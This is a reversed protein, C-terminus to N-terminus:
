RLIRYGGFLRPEALRKNDIDYFYVSVFDSVGSDKSIQKIDNSVAEVFREKIHDEFRYWADSVIVRIMSYDDRRGTMFEIINGDHFDILLDMKDFYADIDAGSNSASPTPSAASTTTPTPTQSPTISIPELVITTDIITVNDDMYTHDVGIIIGVVRVNIDEKEIAPYERISIGEFLFMPGHWDGDRNVDEFDAPIIYVYRHNTSLERKGHVRRWSIHVFGNFEVTRGIHKDVFEEIEAQKPIYINMLAKFDENNNQTIIEDNIVSTPSPAPSPTPTTDIVDDSSSILKLVEEHTMTDRKEIEIGSSRAKIFFYSNSDASVNFTDITVNGDNGFESITITNEGENLLLDYLKIEGQEQVGISKENVSIRIDYTYLVLNKDYEIVIGAHVENIIVQPEPTPQPTPEPTPSPTQPSNQISQPTHNSITAPNQNNGSPSSIAIIIILICAVLVGTIILLKKDNIVKNYLATAKGVIGDQPKDTQKPLVVPNVPYTYNNQTLYQNNQYSEQKKINNVEMSETIPQVNQKPTEIPSSLVEENQLDAGCKECFKSNISVVSGCNKCLNENGENPNTKNLISDDNKPVIPPVPEQSEVLPIQEKVQEQNDQIHKQLTDLHKKGTEQMTKIYKQSTEQIVPIHKKGMDLLSSLKGQKIAVGCNPCTAAKDSVDKGCEPCSIMAMLYDEM